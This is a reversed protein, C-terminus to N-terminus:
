NAHNRRYGVGAIAAILLLALTHPEPVGLPGILTFDHRNNIQTWPDGSAPRFFSNGVADQMGWFWSDDADASTDNFISLWFTTGPVLAIPVVNASYAYVDSGASDVGTDIRGPNGIVLSHLPAGADPAGAVDAYIQITFADAAQPTNSFAYLGTWQFGTITSAGPALIFDDASVTPFDPDSVFSNTGMGGNSFIVAANAATGYTLVLVLLLRLVNM